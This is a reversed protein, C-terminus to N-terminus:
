RWKVRWENFRSNGVALRIKQVETALRGKIKDSGKYVSSGLLVDAMQVLLVGHSDVQLVDWLQPVVAPLTSISHTPAKKPQRLYDAILTTKEEAKLNKQLLMKIYRLYCEWSELYDKPAQFKVDNLDVFFSCFRWNPENLLIKLCNLYYPLSKQTVSTFKFEVRSSDKKLANCLGEYESHLATILKDPFSHVIAGVAFYRVARNQVNLTGSEDLFCFTPKIM